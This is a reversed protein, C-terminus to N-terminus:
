LCCFHGFLQFKNPWLTPLPTLAVLVKQGMEEFPFELTGAFNQLLAMLLFFHFLTGYFHQKSIFLNLRSSM